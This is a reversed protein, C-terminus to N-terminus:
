HVPYDLEYNGLEPTQIKEGKGDRVLGHILVTDFPAKGTYELASFIMRLRM